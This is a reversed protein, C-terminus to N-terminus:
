LLMDVEMEFGMDWVYSSAHAYTPFVGFAVLINLFVILPGRWAPQWFQEANPVGGPTSNSGNTINGPPFVDVATGTFMSCYIVVAAIGVYVIFAKNWCSQKPMKLPSNQLHGQFLFCLMAINMAVSTQEVTLVGHLGKFTAGKIAEEASEYYAFLAACVGALACLYYCVFIMTECKGVCDSWQHQLGQLINPFAYVANGGLVLNEMVNTATSLDALITVWGPDGDAWLKFLNEAAAKINAACPFATITVYVFSVVLGLWNSGSSHQPQLRDIARMLSVFFAPWVAVGAMMYGALNEHTVQEGRATAIRFPAQLGNVTALIICAYLIGRVIKLFREERNMRDWPKSRSVLAERTSQIYDNYVRTSRELLKRRVEDPKLFGNKREYETECELCDLPVQSRPSIDHQGTKWLETSIRRFYAIDPTPSNYASYKNFIVKLEPQLRKFDPEHDSNIHRSLLSGVEAQLAEHNVENGLLPEAEGNNAYM